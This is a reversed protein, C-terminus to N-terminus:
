EKMIKKSVVKNDAEFILLYVGSPLRNMDIQEEQVGTKIVKQYIVVGFLDHLTIKKTKADGSVNVKLIDTVPNPYVLMNNTVKQTTTAVTNVTANCDVPSTATNSFYIAHSGSVEVFVVDNGILNVYYQNNDFNTIGSGKITVTPAAANLNKVTTSSFGSYWPSANYNFSFDYLGNNELNWNFTGMSVTALNPGNTGLVYINKFTGNKTPLATSRPVSFTTLLCTSGTALAKFTAAITQNATVNAFVYSTVAGVSVGNVTVGDVQYGASPTIAYTKSAGSTVTTTGSPTISGNASATASITYSSIVNTKFTAAITQNATVNTFAYTTIAGVSVGNVTVADVVYGANATITFTKNSGSTVTSAGSPSITGNGAASATITYSTTATTKFTAAITQNAVVNTFTYSTVAGVSVGNVLVADVVYGTNPTITFTKSSGNVVTVSGVPSIAGNAGATAAITSSTTATVSGNLIEPALYPKLLDYKWQVLTSWDDGVIGGTDGSNPNFCWFTWSYKSGMYKLFSKMWIEDKGGATKIGFEGVLLPSTNNNYLYGFNKDWIASMNDPFTSDSFWPQEFVTPGYEHPSYLLKNAKSLVIPYTKAGILNGGWWYNDGGYSEIGEAVILVNPNVALIANGCREVAKNWDTAPNSNGWTATEPSGAVKGHPENDLDFGVVADYDKYRNAMLVWNEIWKTEPVKASYWITESLYGDAIRAHNDLIVKLNLEQCYKVLQDLLQIPTTVNKIDANMPSVGSYSDTGYSDIQITVGPELMADTWPIRVCNFKLDKIQQLVSKMDRTWLGHPKYMATEFGFWNIGTLRVEKGSADILTNGSTSLFNKNTTQANLNNGLVLVFFLIYIKLKHIM